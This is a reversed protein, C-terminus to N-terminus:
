RSRRRRSVALALAGVGALLGFASPEPIETSVVTTVITMAPAYTYAARESNGDGPAITGYLGSVGSSTMSAAALSTSIATWDDGSLDDDTTDASVFVFLYTTSSSGLELNDFLWTFSTSDALTGSNTSSGVYEGVVSTASSGTTFVAIKFESYTGSGSSRGTLTISSLLLGESISSFDDADDSDATTTLSSNTLAIAFGVYGNGNSSSSNTTTYTTDAIAFASSAALLAAATFVHGLKM